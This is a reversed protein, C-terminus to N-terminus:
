EVQQTVEAAGVKGTTLRVLVAHPHLPKPTLLPTLIAPTLKYTPQNHKQLMDVLSDSARVM